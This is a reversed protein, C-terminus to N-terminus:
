SRIKKLAEQFLKRAPAAAPLEGIVRELTPIAEAAAPGIDALVRVAWVRGQGKDKDLIRTAAPVADAGASAMVIATAEQVKIDKDSLNDAMQDLAYVRWEFPTGVHFYQGLSQAAAIKLDAAKEKLPAAIIEIEDKTDIGIRGYAAVAAKRVIADKDQFLKAVADGLKRGGGWERARPGIEAIAFLVKQRTKVDNDNMAEVLVRIVRPDLSEGAAAAMEIGQHRVKADKHQLRQILDADAKAPDGGVQYNWLMLCGLVLRMLADGIRAGWNAKNDECMRRRIDDEFKRSESRLTLM